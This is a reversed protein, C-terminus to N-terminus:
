FFDVDSSPRVGGDPNRYIAWRAPVQIRARNIFPSRGQRLRSKIKKGAFERKAGIPSGDDAPNQGADETEGSGTSGRSESPKATRICNKQLGKDM